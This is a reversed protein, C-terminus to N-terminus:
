PKGLPKESARTLSGSGSTGRMSPDEPSSAKTSPPALSQSGGTEVQASAVDAVSTRASSAESQQQSKPNREKATQVTSISEKEVKTGPVWSSGIALILLLAFISIYFVASKEKSHLTMALFKKPSEDGIRKTLGVLPVRDALANEMAVGHKVAGILLPYYWYQDMFYFALWAIAAVGFFVASLNGQFHLGWFVYDIVLRDKLAIGAAGVFASILIVSFNRIKMQLENFHMQVDITKEWIKIQSDLNDNQKAKVKFKGM